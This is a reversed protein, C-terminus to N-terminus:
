APLVTKFLTNELRRIIAHIEEEREEPTSKKDAMDNLRVLLLECVEHFASLKINPETIEDIGWDANLNLNIVRAPIDAAYSARSNDDTKTHTYDIYWDKLGLYDIWWDCETKFIEFHEKTTKAM